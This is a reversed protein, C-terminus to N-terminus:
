VTCFELEATFWIEAGRGGLVVGQNLTYGGGGGDDCEEFQVSACKALPM